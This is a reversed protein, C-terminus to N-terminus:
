IKQYSTEKLPAPASKPLWEKEISPPPQCVTPEYSPLEIVPPEVLPPAEEKETCGCQSLVFLVAIVILVIFLIKKLLPSLIHRM